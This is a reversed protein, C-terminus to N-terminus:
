SPGDKDVGPRKGKMLGGGPVGKLDVKGTMNRLRRGMAWEGVWDSLNGHGGM